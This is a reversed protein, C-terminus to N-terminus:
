IGDSYGSESAMQTALIALEAKGLKGIFYNSVRLFKWVKNGPLSLAILPNQFCPLYLYLKDQLSGKATM